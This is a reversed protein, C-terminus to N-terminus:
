RVTSSAAKMAKLERGLNKVINDSHTELATLVGDDLKGLTNLLRANLENTKVGNAFINKTPGSMADMETAIQKM